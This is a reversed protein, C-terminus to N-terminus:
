QQVPQSVPYLEQYQTKYKNVGGVNDASLIASIQGDYPDVVALNWAESIVRIRNSLCGYLTVMNQWTAYYPSSPAVVMANLADLSTNITAYLSAASSAYAQRTALDSSTYNNNFDTATASIQADLGALEGYYASLNQFLAENAAVAPDVAPVTPDTVTTGGSSQAPDSPPPTVVQQDQGTQQDGTQASVDGQQDGTAPGSPQGADWPRFILLVVAVILIALIAILVIPWKPSGDMQSTDLERGMPQGQRPMSSNMPVARGQQAYQPQAYQQPAYQQQYRPAQQPAQGYAPAQQAPMQQTPPVARAAAQQQSRMLAGEVDTGCVPCYKVGSPLESGCVPCNM